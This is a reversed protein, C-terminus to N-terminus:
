LDAVGSKDIDNLISLDTETDQFVSKDINFKM